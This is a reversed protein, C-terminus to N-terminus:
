RPLSASRATRWPGVCSPKRMSDLEAPTPAGAASGKAYMRVNTGGLFSGVNVSAGREEITRLWRDFGGPGGFRAVQADAASDGPEANSGPPERHCAYYGRGHDRHHDGAHGEVRAPCRRRAAGGPIARYTSSAPPSSTGRQTSGSPAGRRVCRARAAYRARHPRRPDRRRRLVLCRGDRGAFLAAQDAHHPSDPVPEARLRARLLRAARGMRTASSSPSSGATAATSAARGDEDQRLQARPLLRARRWLRRGARGRRRPARPAGRGLRRGLQRVAPADRSPGRSRRRPACRTALGRPTTTPEDAGSSPTCTRAAWSCRPLPEVVDRLARRRPERRPRTTGARAARAARRRRRGAARVAAILDDKVRDALLMRM